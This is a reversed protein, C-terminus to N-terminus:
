EKTEAQASMVTLFQAPHLRLAAKLKGKRGKQILRAWSLRNSEIEEWESEAAYEVGAIGDIGLAAERGGVDLVVALPRREGRALPDLLAVIEGRLAFIGVVLRDQVWPTLKPRDVVERIHADDIAILEPGVHAFLYRRSIDVSAAQETRKRAEVEAELQELLDDALGWNQNLADDSM